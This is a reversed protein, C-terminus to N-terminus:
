WSMWPPYGPLLKELEAHVVESFQDFHSHLVSAFARTLRLAAQQKPDGPILLCDYQSKSLAFGFALTLLVSLDHMAQQEM